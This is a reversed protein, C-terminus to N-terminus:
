WARVVDNVDLHNDDKNNSTSSSSAVSHNPFVSNVQIWGGKEERKQTGDSTWVDSRRYIRLKEGPKIGHLYGADIYINDGKVATVKTSFPVCALKENIQMSMAKLMGDIKTGLDTKFWHITVTAGNGPYGVVDGDVTGQYQQSHFLSGYATDYIYLKMVVNRQTSGGVLVSFWGKPSNITLDMLELKVVFQSAYQRGLKSVSAATYLTMTEFGANRAELVKFRDVSDLHQYLRKSTLNALGPLDSAVDQVGTTDAVLIVKRYYYPSGPDPRCAELASPMEVKAQEESQLNGVQQVLQIEDKSSCGALLILVVGVISRKYITVTM